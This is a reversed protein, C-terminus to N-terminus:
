IVPWISGQGGLDHGLWLQDIWAEALQEELLQVADASTRAV